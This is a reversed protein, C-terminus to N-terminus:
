GSSRRSVSLCQSFVHVSCLSSLRPFTFGRPLGGPSRAGQACGAVVVTITASALLALPFRNLGREECRKLSNDHREALCM